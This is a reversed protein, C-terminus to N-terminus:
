FGILKFPIKIIFYLFLIKKIIVALDVLTLKSFEDESESEKIVIQINLITSRQNRM